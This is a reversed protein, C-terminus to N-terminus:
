EEQVLSAECALADTDRIGTGAHEGRTQTVGANGKGRRHGRTQPSGPNGNGRPSGPNQEQLSGPNGNGRSSGPNQQSGTVWPNGNTKQCAYPFLPHMERWSLRRWRGRKAVRTENKCYPSIPLQPNQLQRHKCPILASLYLPRSPSM